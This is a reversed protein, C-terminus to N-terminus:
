KGEMRLWWSDTNVVVESTLLVVCILWVVSTRMFAGAQWKPTLELITQRGTAKSYDSRNPGSHKNVEFIDRERFFWRRSVEM